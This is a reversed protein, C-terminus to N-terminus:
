SGPTQAKPLEMWFKSGRDPSSEVGVRGGMHEVGKRVIALGIGTGPYADAGKLREFARFLRPQLEPAVGIGNDEVWLRVSEEREEARIKVRPQASPAVFKLANALLNALAQVLTGRHGLVPPLPQEVTVQAKKKRIEEDFQALVEPVVRALGVPQRHMDVRSLRTYDLLDRLLLDLRQVAEGIGRVCERGGFELRPAHSKMLVDVAHRIGRLPANLDQSMSAVFAELGANTDELEQNKRKLADQAEKMKLLSATRVKLETQDVPKSIFDNAGAEVARLRDEKDGLVTVMVIPLLCLDPDQRIRKAVTFGDMGPMLADLLVVDVQQKAKALAELGDRALVPEHGLSKVMAELLDRNPESDDVILVRKPRDM